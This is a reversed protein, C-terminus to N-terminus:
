GFCPFFTFTLRECLSRKLRQHGRSKRLARAHRYKRLTWISQNNSRSQQSQLHPQTKFCYLVVLAAARSRPYSRPNLLKVNGILTRNMGSREWIGPGSKTLGALPQVLLRSLGSLCVHDGIRSEVNKISYNEENVPQVAENMRAVCQHRETVSRGHGCSPKRASYQDWRDEETKTQGVVLRATRLVLRAHTTM